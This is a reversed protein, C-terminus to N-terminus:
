PKMTIKYIAGIMLYHPISMHITETKGQGNVAYMSNSLNHFLDYGTLKVVLKKKCFARSLSANWVLHSTNMYSDSYGRRSYMKIDTSLDVDAFLKCVSIAGYSFEFVNINEFYGSKSVAGHWEFSGLLDLRFKKRQYTLKLREEAYCNDVKSEQTDDLGAVKAM